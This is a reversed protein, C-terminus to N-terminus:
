AISSAQEKILGSIIKADQLRKCRRKLAQKAKEQLEPEGEGFGQRPDIAVCLQMSGTYTVDVLKEQILALAQVRELESFKDTLTVAKKLMTMCFWADALNARDFEVGRQAESYMKLVDSARAINDIAATSRIITDVQMSLIPM